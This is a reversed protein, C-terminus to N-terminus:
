DQLAQSEDIIQRIFRLAAELYRLRQPPKTTSLSGMKVVHQRLKQDRRLTFRVDIEVSSHDSKLQCSLFSVEDVLEAKWLALQSQLAEDMGGLEVIGRHDSM